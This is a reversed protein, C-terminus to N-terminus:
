ETSKTYTDLAPVSDIANNIGTYNLVPKLELAALANKLNAAATDIDGQSTASKAAVAARIYGATKDMVDSHDIHGAAIAFAKGRRNLMSCMDM